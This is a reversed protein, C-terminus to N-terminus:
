FNLNNVFNNLKDLESPVVISPITLTSEDVAKYLAELKKGYDDTYNGESICKGLYKYDCESKVALINTDPNAGWTVLSVERMYWEYVHRPQKGDHKIAFVGVSHEVQKDYKMAMRYDAYANIGDEKDLNIAAKVILGANDQWADLIVGLQRSKDHQYLYKLRDINERLTKTFSGPMSIDQSTDINGFTNARFVVVGNDDLDTIVQSASKVEFARNHKMKCIM